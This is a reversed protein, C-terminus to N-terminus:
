KALMICHNGHFHRMHIAFDHRKFSTTKFYKLTMRLTSDLM